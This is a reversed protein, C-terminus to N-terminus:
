PGGTAPRRRVQPYHAPRAELVRLRDILEREVAVRLGAVVPHGALTPDAAVLALAEALSPASMALARETHCLGAGCAM